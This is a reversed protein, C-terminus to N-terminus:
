PIENARARWSEGPPKQREEKEVKNLKFSAFGKTMQGPIGLLKYSLQFIEIADAMLGYSRHPFGELPCFARQIQRRGGVQHPLDFM